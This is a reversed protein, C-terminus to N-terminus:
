DWYLFFYVIGFFLLCMFLVVLVITAMALSLGFAVLFKRFNM